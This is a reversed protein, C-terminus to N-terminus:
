GLMERVLSSIIKGDAQGGVEAMVSKMVVGFAAAGTQGSADVVKKVVARLEDDSLQKPLYSMTMDLEAQERQAIEERGGARAADMAEKRKKAYSTLVRRESAEDLEAGKAIKENKLESMLMRVVSLRLKDGAKMATKMDENLQEKIM